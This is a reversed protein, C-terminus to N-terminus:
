SFIVFIVSTEKFLGGKKPIPRELRLSRVSDPFEDDIKEAILLVISYLVIRDEIHIVAGPRFGLSGKPVEIRFLKHPRYNDTFLKNSIELINNNLDIAFVDTSFLDEAFDRIVDLRSLHWGRKLIDPDLLKKWLLNKAM